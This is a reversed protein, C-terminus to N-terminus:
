ASTKKAAAQKASKKATAKRAPTKPTARKVSKKTPTKSSKKATATPAPTKTATKATATTATKATAKKATAKTAKEATAKTAKKATAKTATAKKVKKAKMAAAKPATTTPASFSLRPEIRSARARAEQARRTDGVGDYADALHRALEASPAADFAIAFLPLASAPDEDVLLRGVKALVSARSAFPFFSCLVLAAEFFARALVVRGRHRALNGANGLGIAAISPDLEAARLYAEIAEDIEGRQELAWARNTLERALSEADPASGERSTEPRGLAREALV